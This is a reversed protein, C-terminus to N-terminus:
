NAGLQSAIEDRRSKLQRLSAELTALLEQAARALERDDSCLTVLQKQRAVSEEAKRLHEETQDLDKKRHNMSRWRVRASRLENHSRVKGTALHRSDRAAAPELKM